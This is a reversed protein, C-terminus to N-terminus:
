DNGTVIASPIYYLCCNPSLMLTISRFVIMLEEYMPQMEKPRVAFYYKMSTWFGSVGPMWKDKQKNIIDQGANLGFNIMEPSVNQFAPFSSQQGNGSSSFQNQQYLSSM